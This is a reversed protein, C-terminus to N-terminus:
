FAKEWTRPYNLDKVLENFPWKCLPLSACRESLMSLQALFLLLYVAVASGSVSCSHELDGVASASPCLLYITILPSWEEKFLYIRHFGPKLSTLLLIGQPKLPVLNKEWNIEPNRCPTAKSACCSFTAAGDHDPPAWQFVSVLYPLLVCYISEEAWCRRWRKWKVKM